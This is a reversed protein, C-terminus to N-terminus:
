AANDHGIRTFTDGPRQRDHHRRAVSAWGRIAQTSPYHAHRGTEWSRQKPVGVIFPGFDDMKEFAGEADSNTLIM